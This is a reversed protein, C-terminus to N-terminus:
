DAGRVFGDAAAGEAASGVGEIEAAEEAAGIEVAVALEGEEVEDGEAVEEGRAVEGGVEVAASRQIEEVEEGELGLERRPARLSCRAWARPGCAFCTPSM